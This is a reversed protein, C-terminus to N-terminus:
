ASPNDSILKKRKLCLVFLKFENLLSTKINNQKSKNSDVSIITSAKKKQM